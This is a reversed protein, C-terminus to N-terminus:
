YNTGLSKTTLLFNNVKCACCCKPCHKAELNQLGDAQASTKSKVGEVKGTM